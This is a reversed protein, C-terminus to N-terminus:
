TMLSLAGLAYLHNRTLPLNARGYWEQAERHQLDADLVVFKIGTPVGILADPWRAWWGAIVSPDVSADKFGHTTYPKKSSRWCPFVGLGQAALALATRIM